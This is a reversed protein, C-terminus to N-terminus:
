QYYPPTHHVDHERWIAQYGLGVRRLVEFKAIPQQVNPILDAAQRYLLISSDPNSDKFEDGLFVTLLIKSSDSIATNLQQKLDAIADNQSFGLVPCAFLIFLITRTMM